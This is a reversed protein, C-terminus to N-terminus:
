IEQLERRIECEKHDNEREVAKWQVDDSVDIESSTGEDSTKTSKPFMGSISNREGDVVETGFSEEENTLQNM